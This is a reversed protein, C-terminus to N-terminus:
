KVDDSIIKIIVEEKPQKEVITFTEYAQQEWEPNIEKNTYLTMITEGVEVAEGFGKNLYIGAAHDISEEKTQRGAGLHMSLLGLGEAQNYKVFGKTKTKIEIKHKNTFVQDYNEMVSWDGHQAIVFEKFFHAAEGSQMKKYVDKKATKLDDFIKAQLLTVGVATAVLENFDQPGKGHLADWAEKVEIANGIAKGLPKNMDTILVAIKRGHERGIGIMRNALDEAQEVTKMFAGDGTKVDLILGDNEIILKKSMISAAILPMSDVTGTVDRLAYIKKDAPVVDNSQAILSMGVENVVKIFEDNTLESQWGPFTELKDITGGTQGLGRGSLKCVKIGYSAVLPSFVLSTKDGVGGTSHKDAKFGQVKSVDYTKGSNVYATTLAATERNTMGNFYIAMAMASFQYDTVVGKVYNSILWEIEANSLEIKHKKKEILESFTM